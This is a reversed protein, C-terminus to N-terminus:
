ENSIIIRNNLIKYKFNSALQLASLIEELSEHQFKATFRLQTLKKDSFEIPMDFKRELTKALHTFSQNKFVLKNEQWTAEVPLKDEPAYFTLKQKKTIINQKASYKGSQESSIIVKDMPKLLVPAENAGEARVELAGEILSTETVQEDPYARVNFSTGVVKLLANKTSVYFPKSSDKAVHFFAEGEISVKRANKEFKDPYYLTSKYNLIVETGDDLVIKQQKRNAVFKYQKPNTYHLISLGIALLLCAVLSLPIWYKPRQRTPKDSLDIRQMVQEFLYRDRQNQNEKNSWYLELLRFRKLFEAQQILMSFEESENEDLRDALKKSALYEFREEQM